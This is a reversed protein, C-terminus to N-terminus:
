DEHFGGTSGFGQEGRASDPLIEVQRWSVNVLRPMIILQFLREGKRAVTKKDTPNYVLARIEGRYESDIIGTNVLMFKNYFTSSRGVLMAWTHVPLCVGTNTPVSAIQHPHVVVDRTVTLDFGADTPYKQVPDAFFEDQRMKAFQVELSTGEPQQTNDV